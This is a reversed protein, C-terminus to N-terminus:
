VGDNTDRAQVSLLYKDILKVLAQVDFGDVAPVRGSKICINVWYTLALINKVTVSDFHSGGCAVIKREATEIWTNVGAVTFGCFYVLDVQWNTHILIM